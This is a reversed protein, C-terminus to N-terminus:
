SPAGARPGRAAGWHTPTVVHADGYSGSNAQGGTTFGVADGPVGSLPNADVGGYLDAQSPVQTDNGHVIGWTQPSAQSVSNGSLGTLNVPGGLVPGRPPLAEESAITLPVPTASSGGGAVTSQTVLGAPTRDIHGPSDYSAM